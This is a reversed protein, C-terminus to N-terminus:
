QAISVKYYFPVVHTSALTRYFVFLGGFFTTQIPHM